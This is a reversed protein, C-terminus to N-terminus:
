CMLFTVVATDPTSSCTIGKVALALTGLGKLLGCCHQLLADVVHGAHAFCAVLLQSPLQTLELLLQSCAPPLLLLRRCLYPHKCSAQLM